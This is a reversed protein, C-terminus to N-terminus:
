LLLIENCNKSTVHVKVNSSHCKANKFKGPFYGGNGGNGPFYGGNNGPFYGGNGGNGGPFYGGNEGPYFAGNSGTIHMSYIKCTLILRLKLVNDISLIKDDHVAYKGGWRWASAVAILISFVGFIIMRRHM